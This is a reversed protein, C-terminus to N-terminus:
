WPSPSQPHTQAKSFVSLTETKLLAPYDVPFDVRGIQGPNSNLARKTVDDSTYATQRVRSTAFPHALEIHEDEM